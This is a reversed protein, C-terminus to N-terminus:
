KGAGAARGGVLDALRAAFLPAVVLGVSLLGVATILVSDLTAGLGSLALGGAAVGLAALLNTMVPKLGDRGNLSLTVVVRM